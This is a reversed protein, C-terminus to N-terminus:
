LQFLGELDAKLKEVLAPDTRQYPTKELEQLQRTLGIHLMQTLEAETKEAMNKYCPRGVIPRLDICNGKSDRYLGPFHTIEYVKSYGESDVDDAEEWDNFAVLKLKRKELEGAYDFDEPPWAPLIYWWRALVQAILIKKKDRERANSSMVVEEDDDEESSSSDEESSDEPMGPKRRVRPKSSAARQSSPFEVLPMDDDDDESVVGRM